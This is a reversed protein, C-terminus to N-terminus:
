NGSSRDLPPRPHREVAPVVTALNFREARLGARGGGLRGRRDSIEVARIGITQAWAVGGIVFPGPDIRDLGRPTDIRSQLKIPAEAAYGRPVWYHDFDAFTRLEIRELWKTASAYGYIGPVILRAPYGHVRTPATGREYRHRGPRGPRRAGRRPFGCTYGDVSRGVIQDVQPDIDVSALLEDLRVGLWRATGLLHGGITNSVCTLTIDAEVLPLDVLQDYSLTREDAVLGGITLRWTDVDVQPVTLATDIRYFEDNPTFFAAASPAQISAPPEDLPATATPLM